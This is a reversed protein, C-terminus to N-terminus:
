LKRPHQVNLNVKCCKYETVFWSEPQAWALGQWLCSLVCKCHGHISANLVHETVGAPGPLVPSPCAAPLGPSSSLTVPVGWMAEMAACRLAPLSGSVCAAAEAVPAAASTGGGSDVADLLRSAVSVTPLLSLPAPM